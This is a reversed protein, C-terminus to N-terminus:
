PRGDAIYSTPLWNQKSRINRREEKEGDLEGM